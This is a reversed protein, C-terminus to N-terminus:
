NTKPNVTIIQENGSVTITDNVGHTHNGGAYASVKGYMTSTTISSVVTAATLDAATKTNTITVTSNTVANGSVTVDVDSVTPSVNTVVSYTGTAASIIPITTATNKTLEAATKTNTITVTPSTVASGTVTVDVDSVTPSASAVATVFTNKPVSVKYTNSTVNLAVTPQTFTTAGSKGVTYTTATASGGATITTTASLVSVSGATTTTVSGNNATFTLIENAVSAGFVNATTTATVSTLANTSVKSLTEAGTMYKTNSAAVGYVSMSGVTAAGGTVSSVAVDTVLKQGGTVTYLALSTSANKTVTGLGTVGTVINAVTGSFTASSDVVVTAATAKSYSVGTLWTSQGVNAVLYNKTQAVDAVISPVTGSFTASSNVTVTGGTAKSYSVGTVVDSRTTIANVTKISTAGTIATTQFTAPIATATLSTSSVAITGAKSVSPTFTATGQDYYAMKGMKTPNAFEQWITGNFIFDKATYLSSTTDNYSAVDGAIATYSEGNIQIPNTTAGDTLATTTIGVYKNFDGLEQILKQLYSISEQAEGDKLYYITTDTPLKVQSIYQKPM